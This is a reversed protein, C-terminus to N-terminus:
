GGQTAVGGTWRIARQSSGLPDTMPASHVRATTAISCTGACDCGSNPVGKRHSPSGRTHANGFLADVSKSRECPFRSLVTLVVSGPIINTGSTPDCFAVTESQRSLKLAEGTPRTVNCEDGTSIGTNPQLGAVHHNSTLAPRSMAVRVSVSTEFAWGPTQLECGDALRLM